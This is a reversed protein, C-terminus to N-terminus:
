KSRVEQPRADPPTEDHRPGNKGSEARELQGVIELLRRHAARYRPAEELALLAHRKAALLDGARQWAAALQLHLQAEDAPDLLLLARYSDIALRDDSLREAALAAYRHPAPLLPNVAQWRLAYTRAAPWDELQVTLETLRAFMEVDDASLEALRELVAREPGTERLERHVRALLIYPNDAGSDAPYLQRMTELPRKAGSWDKQEILLKALRRWGAYNHPHDELWATLMARDARRPLEPQGWDVEPALNSARQRAYAAFLADLAEIPATHRALAENIFVGAGLDNLIRNLADLGYTEILYEVVLSSQFYAFQLHLPTPPNLFAGSLESVPTLDDGLVLARYRPTLSQGWTPDAQREEYVSIGESLWRPMRNRTKQLTVVHCFEHWLMAQWNTPSDAQSAPSNATIVTGFCVGLFGAGGPMGFTRVAFDQQRPFMEVVVPKDIEVGYKECLRRRARTLLDILSRGYIEAERTEMRVIFGDAELTRFQALSDRLVTLNHAIIDYGDDRSAEDALRWGEDEEGLRLLDQSLQIKAPRYRADIVLARRQCAAGEAFRYKQSLKKGILHDVEPNSTWFKLAAERLRSEAEPQNRLHALVARCALAAPHHPNIAAIRALSEDASAYEESDIQQEVTLLLAAVHNPNRDLAASLAKAARAPDSPAYARALGLHVEADGEDLKLAEEFHRAALSYDHKDLAVDGSALHAEVVKPQQKIVEGFVLDLVRKPDAGQNLLMRGVVIQSQADGYRWASQRVLAGIEEELRAVRESQGNFRCVDRGYWRLLLSTPFRALAEDLTKQADTYRGLQMEARLKVLHLGESIQPQALAQTAADLCEAYRGTRYM